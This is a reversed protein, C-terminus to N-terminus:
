HYCALAFIYVAIADIKLCLSDAVNRNGVLVNGSLLKGICIRRRSFDERFSLFLLVVAPSFGQEVWLGAGGTFGPEM